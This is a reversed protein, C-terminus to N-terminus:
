LCYHNSRIYESNDSVVHIRQDNILRTETTEKRVGVFPSWSLLQIVFPPFVSQFITYTTEFFVFFVFILKPLSQSFPVLLFTTSLLKKEKRGDAEAASLGRSPWGELHARKLFAKREWVM